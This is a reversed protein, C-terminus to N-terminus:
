QFEGKLNGRFDRGKSFLYFGKSSPGLTGAQESERKSKRGKEGKGKRGTKELNWAGKEQRQLMNGSNM